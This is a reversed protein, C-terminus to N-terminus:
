LQVLGTVAMVLEAADDSADLDVEALIRWDHDGAPDDLIQQVRWTRGEQEVLLMHPGRADPGTGIEHHEAYYAALAERWAEADMGSAADLDGLEDYRRRA